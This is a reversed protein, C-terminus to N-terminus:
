DRGRFPTSKSGHRVGSQGLVRSPARFDARESEGRTGYDPRLPDLFTELFTRGTERGTLEALSKGLRRDCISM